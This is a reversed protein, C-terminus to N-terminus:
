CGAEFRALFFLLDNIDVANDPTGTGSGDDLDVAINGSEFRVLFFLLDEITVADDVVSPGLTAHVLDAACARRLTIPPSIVTGCSSTVACTYEGFDSALFASPTFLTNSNTGGFRTTIPQGNFRWQYTIPSVASTATVRMQGAPPPLMGGVRAVFEAPGNLVVAPRGDSLRLLSPGSQLAILQNRDPDFAAGTYGPSFSPQSSVFSRPVWQQGNWWWVSSSSNPTLLEVRATQRNYCMGTRYSNPPRTAPAPVPTRNTWTTGDFEWTDGLAGTCPNRYGGYLVLVGRAEDFAMSCDGRPGPGSAADVLLTWQTGDWAWTDGFYNNCNEDGPFGGVLIVRQHVPDYAMAHGGRPAPGTDAVQTWSQGDWVHTTPIDTPVVDARRGGFAVVNGRAADFATTIYLPNTRFPEFFTARRAYATGNWAWTEGNLTVFVAEHRISDWVLSTPSAISMGTPPTVAPLAQM